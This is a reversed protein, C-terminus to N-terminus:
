KSSLALALEGFLYGLTCYIACVSPIVAAERSVGLELALAVGALVLACIVWWPRRALYSKRRASNM